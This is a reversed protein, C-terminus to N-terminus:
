GYPKDMWRREKLWKSLAPIWRGGDKNWSTDTSKHNCISKLLISINPLEKHMSMRSFIEWAMWQSKKLPYENALLEFQKKLPLKSLEDEAVRAALITAAQAKRNAEARLAEVAQFNEEIKKMKQIEDSVCQFRRAKQFSCVAIFYILRFYLYLINNTGLIGKRRSVFIGWGQNLFFLAVIRIEQVLFVFHPNVPRPPQNWPM